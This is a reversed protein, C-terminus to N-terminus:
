YPWVQEKSHRELVDGHFDVLLARLSRHGITVGIAYAGEPNLTLL